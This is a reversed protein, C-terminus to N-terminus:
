KFQVPLFICESSPCNLFKIRTHSKLTSGFSVVIFIETLDATAFINDFILGTEFIEYVWSVNVQYNCIYWFGKLFRFDDFSPQKTKM